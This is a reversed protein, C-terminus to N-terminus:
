SREASAQAQQPDVKIGPGMSSALSISRLYRGKAASPRARLLAHLLALFNERLKETEYTVKGIPVHVIGAREVRFEARSASKIERVVAGINDTVTGNRPSPMRPGLARGLARGVQPMLDPTALLLDFERWGQQIQTILEDAGVTDAGAQEAEQAKEGRAFVAVRRVKGTGHPLSVTGRVMQDGHRPDVGLRIAAEVTEPFKATAFKKVLELAEDLSYENRLNTGAVVQRYRKDKRAM